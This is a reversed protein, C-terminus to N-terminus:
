SSRGFGQCGSFKGFSVVGLLIWLKMAKRVSKSNSLLVNKGPSVDQGVSRVYQAIFWASKLFPVLVSRVVSLIILMFSRSLM